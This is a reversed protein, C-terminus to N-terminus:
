SWCESVFRSENSFVISSWHFWDNYNM